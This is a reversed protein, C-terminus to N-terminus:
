ILIKIFLCRDGQQVLILLFSPSFSACFHALIKPTNSPATQGCILGYRGIGSLMTALKTTAGEYRLKGSSLKASTDGQLLTEWVDKIHELYRLIEDNYKIAMITHLTSIRM